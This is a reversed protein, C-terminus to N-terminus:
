ATKRALWERKRREALTLEEGKGGERRGERGGPALDPLYRVVDEFEKVDPPVAYGGNARPLLFGSATLAATLEKYLKRTVREGSVRIGMLRSRSWQGGHQTIVEQLVAALTPPNLGLATRRGDPLALRKEGDLLYPDGGYPRVVIPGSPTPEAMPPGYTEVSRYSSLGDRLEVFNEIVNVYLALGGAGVGVMVAVGLTGWTLRGQVVIAVVAVAVALTVTEVVSMLTVAGVEPTRLERSQGTEEARHLVPQKREAM